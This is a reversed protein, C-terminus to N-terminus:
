METSLKERLMKKARFIRTEVTSVPVSLVEAIQEYSLEEQYRLILVERYKEQLSQISERITASQVRHEYVDEPRPSNFDEARELDEEDMLRPKKKRLADIALNHAIRYCWKVYGGAADPDVQSWTRYAQLLADQTLDEAEERSGVMRAVYNFLGSEHERVFQSFQRLNGQRADDAVGFTQL